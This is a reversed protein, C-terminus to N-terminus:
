SESTPLNKIPNTYIPDSSNEWKQRKKDNKTAKRRKEENKKKAKRRKEENKKAKRRKEESKKTEGPVLAFSQLKSPFHPIESRGRRCGTRGKRSQETKVLSFGLNVLSKGERGFGRFDQFFLPFCGFLWPFEPHKFNVLSIWFVLSLFSLAGVGNPVERNQHRCSLADCVDLNSAAAAGGHCHSM